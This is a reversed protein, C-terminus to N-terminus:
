SARRLDAESRAPKDARALAERAARVGQQGALRTPADLRWDAAWHARRAKPARTPRATPPQKAQKAKGAARRPRSPRSPRAPPAAAETTEVLRLQTSM